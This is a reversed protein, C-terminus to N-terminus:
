NSMTKILPSCLPKKVIMHSMSNNMINWRKLLVAVCFWFTWAVHLNRISGEVMSGAIISVTFSFIAILDERTFQDYLGPRLKSLIGMNLYTYRIILLTLGLAAMVGSNLAFFLIMNHAGQVYGSQNDVEIGFIGGYGFGYPAFGYGKLSERAYAKWIDFRTSSIDGTSDYRLAHLTFEESAYLDTKFYRGAVTRAVHDRFPKTTKTFIASGLLVVMFIIMTVKIAGYRNSRVKIYFMVVCSVLVALIASKIYIFLSFSWVSLCLVALWRLSFRSFLLQAAAVDFTLVTVMTLQRRDIMSAFSQGRFSNLYDLGFYDMLSIATLGILGIVIIKFFYREWVLSINMNMYVIFFIAPLLMVRFQILFGDNFVGMIFSSLICLSILFPLPSYIKPGFYVRGSRRIREMVYLMGLGVFSFVLLESGLLTFGLVSFVPWGGISKLHDINPQYFLEVTIIFSIFLIMLEYIRMEKPKSILM